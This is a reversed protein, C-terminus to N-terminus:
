TKRPVTVRAQIRKHSRRDVETLVVMLKDEAFGSTEGDILQLFPTTLPLLGKTERLSGPPRTAEPM